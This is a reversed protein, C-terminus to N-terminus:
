MLSEGRIAKSAGNAAFLLVVSVISKMMSVATALSLSGASGLGINYVYLDLVQIHPLNFANQFVFYQEMGNNLLNGIGLLLLVFFTPLLGPVTIHWILKFRGAGDVRAAEYLEQDIGSIGALYLIAGWGLGKWTQWLWMNLWTHDDSTLFMISKSTLGLSQLLTNVMGDSTFLAFAMSFLLVWSIFNPLTTLTQVPRKFKNSRIESLFIAFAMPLWSFAIGLGSMAFTNRLVEFIQQRQISNAFLYQFWKLGVYTSQDLPIPPRYDFFAYVWGYLPYYSFIFILAMFPVIMLFLKIGSWRKRGSMKPRRVPNAADTMRKEGGYAYM